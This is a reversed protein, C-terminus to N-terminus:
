GLVYVKRIVSIDALRVYGIDSDPYKYVIEQALMEAEQYNEASVLHVVKLNLKHFSLMSKPNARTQDFEFNEDVASDGIYGLSELQKRVSSDARTKSSLNDKRISKGLIGALEEKM